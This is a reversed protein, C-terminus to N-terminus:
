KLNELFEKLDAKAEILRREASAIKSELRDAQFKIAEAKTEFYNDWQSHKATKREGAYNEKEIVLMKATERLVKVEDIRNNYRHVEYWTKM